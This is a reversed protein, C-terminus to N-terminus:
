APELSRESLNQRNPEKELECEKPRVCYPASITKGGAPAAEVCYNAFNSQRLHGVCIQEFGSFIEFIRSEVEVDDDAIKGDDRWHLVIVEIDWNSKRSTEM